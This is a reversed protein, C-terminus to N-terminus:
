KKMKQQISNCREKFHLKTRLFREKLKDKVRIVEMINSDCWPKSNGKVRIDKMLAIENVIDQLATTLDISATDICNFTSFDPLDKERLRELLSEISYKRYSRISIDGKAPFLVM